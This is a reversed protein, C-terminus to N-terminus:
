RVIQPTSRSTSRSVDTRNPPTYKIANDILSLFLRRLADSDGVVPVYVEQLRKDFRLSKGEALITGQRCADRLSESLDIPSMTLHSSGADARALTLLDEILKTM